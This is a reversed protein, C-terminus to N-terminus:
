AGLTVCKDWVTVAVKLIELARMGDPAGVATHGRRKLHVLMLNLLDADDDVVLICEPEV